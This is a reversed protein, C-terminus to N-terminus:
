KHRKPGSSVVLTITAGAAYTGDGPNTRVVAGKRISNSHAKAAKVKCELDSLVARALGSPVGKLAPVVCRAPPAGSVVSLTAAAANNAPDPDLAGTSLVISVSNMYSGATTPTAIVDVPVSEKAPLGNIACTVTQGSISCTGDGAAASDIALGAPVQDTFTIPASAPGNNLVASSFLAPHGATAGSPGASTTVGADVDSPALTASLDLFYGSGGALPTESDGPAPPVTPMFAEFRDAADSVGIWTCNGVGDFTYLGLVDGGQVALPTLPTFTAIGDTPLPTPLVEPDIGVVTYAGENPRLVVLTLAGNATDGTTNTEWETIQGGPPPVTDPTSPDSTEQAGMTGAGCSGPSSGAPQAVSGLTIDAAAAAPLALALTVGLGLLTYLSRHM